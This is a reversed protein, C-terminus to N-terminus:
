RGLMKRAVDKYNPMTAEVESTWKIAVDKEAIKSNNVEQILGLFPTLEKKERNKLEKSVIDGVYKMYTADIVEQSAGELRRAEARSNKKFAIVADHLNLLFEKKSTYDDKVLSTYIVDRLVKEEQILQVHDKRMYQEALQYKATLGLLSM